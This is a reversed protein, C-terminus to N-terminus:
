SALKFRSMLETLRTAQEKVTESTNAASEVLHVNEKTINDVDKIVQDVEKIGQAQQNSAVAIDAIITSVRNVSNVIEDLTKGSNDVLEAGDKVKAVSDNILDSIESAAESSRQALTRVEGAVVAFGRGQEGARAAEVAANLALLNTQFAIEDIVNIINGIKLSSENIASMANVAQNVVQGGAEAQNCAETALENAERANDANMQVISTIQEMSSAANQLSASQHETRSNLETNGRSLEVSGKSLEEATQNVKSVIGQLNDVMHSMAAYVGTTKGSEQLQLTLDGDAIGSAIKEMDLPEGGMASLSKKIVGFLLLASIIGIFVSVVSLTVVQEVTSENNAKAAPGLIDQRTQISVKIDESIKAVNPGIVDLVNKILENRKLIISATDNFSSRYNKLAENFNILMQLRAPDQLSKDLDAVRSNISKNLEQEARKKDVLANTNLFKVAYLRGLMVAEQLVGGYYAAEADGSDFASKVLATVETRMALGDPNLRKNVVEDRQKMYGVVQNFANNYQDVDREITDILKLRATDEIQEKAQHLSNQLQAFREQYQAVAHADKSLIYDKVNLRVALMDAQIKSSLNSSRALSRYENFNTVATNLGIYAVVSIAVILALVVGYGFIFQTGLRSKKQM